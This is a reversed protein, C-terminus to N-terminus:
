MEFIQLPQETEHVRHYMEIDIDKGHKRARKQELEQQKQYEVTRWINKVQEDLDADTVILIDGDQLNYRKSITSAGQKKKKNEREEDPIPDEIEHLDENRPNYKAIRINSSDGTANAVFQKFHSIDTWLKQDKQPFPVEIGALYTGRLRRISLLVPPPVNTKTDEETEEMMIQIALHKDNNWHLKDL